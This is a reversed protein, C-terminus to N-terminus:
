SMAQHFQLRTVQMASDGELDLGAEGQGLNPFGGADSLDMDPLNAGDADGEHVRSM